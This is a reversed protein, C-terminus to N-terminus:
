MEKNKKTRQLSIPASNPTNDQTNNESRMKLSQKNTIEFKLYQNNIQTFTKQEEVTITTESDITKVSEKTERISHESRRILSELELRIRLKTKQRKQKNIQGLM